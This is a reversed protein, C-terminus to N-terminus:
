VGGIAGVPAEEGLELHAEVEAVAPPALRPRRGEAGREPVRPFFRRDARYTTYLVYRIGQTKAVHRLPEAHDFLYVADDGFYYGVQLERRAPHPYMLSSTVLLRREASVKDGVADHIQRAWSTRYAMERLEAWAAGPSWDPPVGRHTWEAAYDRQMFAQRRSFQEFGAVLVLVVIVATATAGFRSKALREATAAVVGLVLPMLPLFLRPFLYPFFLAFLVIHAALVLAPLAILERFPDSPPARLALTGAVPLSLVFLWALLVSGTAVVANWLLRATKEVQLAVKAVAGPSPEAAGVEAPAARGSPGATVTGRILQAAHPAHHVVMGSVGVGLPVLVWAVAAFVARRRRVGGRRWAVWAIWTLVGAAAFLLEEHSLAALASAGGVAALANRRLWKAGGDLLRHWGLAAAVTLLLFFTSISHTLELRAVFIALPALGYALASGWALWFRRALGLVVAFVLLVNATDVAANLAKISDDEVGLLGFSAAFLGLVAPRYVARRGGLSYVRDGEVW